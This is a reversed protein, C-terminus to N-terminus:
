QSADFLRRFVQEFGAVDVSVAAQQLRDAGAPRALRTAGRREESLDVVIVGSEVSVLEPKELCAIALPDHLAVGARGRGEISHRCVERVLVSGVDSGDSLSEWLERTFLTQHTVDLGVWLANFPASAVQAAAEPDVFVNFEAFRTVNGPNEFSGGMIVLRSVLEPLSPELSLAIALNTLPGVFACVLEGAHERALQVIAEPATVGSEEIKPAPAEWGGLGDDGHYETATSLPRILPRSAGRHVPVDVDVWSLVRRTNFTAIDVPVNGAVTTVAVLAHRELRSALALAMADDVGTDVDMLLPIGTM